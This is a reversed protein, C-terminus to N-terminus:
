TAQAQSACNAYIFRVCFNTMIRYDINYVALIYLSASFYALLSANATTPIPHMTLSKQYSFEFPSKFAYKEIEEGDLVGM